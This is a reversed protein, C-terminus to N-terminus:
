KMLEMVAERCVPCMDASWDPRTRLTAPSLLQMAADKGIDTDSATAGCFVRKGTITNSYLSRGRFRQDKVSGKTTRVHRIEPQNNM